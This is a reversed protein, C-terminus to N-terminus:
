YIKDFIPPISYAQMDIQIQLCLGMLRTGLRSKGIGDVEDMKDTMTGPQGFWINNISEFWEGYMWIEQPEKHQKKPFPEKEKMMWRVM